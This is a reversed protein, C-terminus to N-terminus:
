TKQTRPRRGRLLNGWRRRRFNHLLHHTNPFGQLGVHQRPRHMKLVLPLSPGVGGRLLRLVRLAGDARGAAMDGPMNQLVTVPQGWLLAFTLEYNVM